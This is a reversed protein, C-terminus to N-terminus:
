LRETTVRAPNGGGAVEAAEGAGRVPLRRRDRGEANLQVSVESKVIESGKLKMDFAMSHSGSYPVQFPYQIALGM